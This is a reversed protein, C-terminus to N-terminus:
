FRYDFNFKPLNLKQRLRPSIPDTGIWEEMPKKYGNEFTDKALKRLDSPKIRILAMNFDKLDLDKKLKISSYRDKHDFAQKILRKYIEKVYM